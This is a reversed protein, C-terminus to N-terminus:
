EDTKGKPALDTDPRAFLQEQHAEFYLLARKVAKVVARPTITAGTFQDFSGGDKKVAWQKLGPNELSKGSFGTIWKSREIDIADGLGPTERHALVRVGEVIGATNVGILLKISGSYGDPAIATFVLAVPTNDIRARYVTLPEASGLWAPEIVSITDAILDNNHREPDIIQNLQRLLVERENKAIKEKTGEFTIAVLGTGIMAFVLLLIGTLTIQRLATM